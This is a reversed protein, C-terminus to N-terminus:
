LVTLRAFAMVLWKSGVMEFNVQVRLHEGKGEINTIVGEGFKAHSVRRATRLEQKARDIQEAYFKRLATVEGAATENDDTYSSQQGFGTHNRTRVDQLTERPIESLFRSPATYNERGYLRRVEAYSLYLQQMARTMGVYCLRREEELRSPDNHAHQSPFM